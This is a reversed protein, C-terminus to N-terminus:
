YKIKKGNIFALLNEMWCINHQIKSLAHESIFEVAKLQEDDIFPLHKTIEENEKKRKYESLRKKEQKITDELIFAVKLSDIYKLLYISIYLDEFKSINKFSNCIEQELFDRGDLTIKYLTKNPRNEIQIIKVPEIFGKKKLSDFNYYFKGESLKEIPITNLLIKKLGYPHNEKDALSGLIFLAISM